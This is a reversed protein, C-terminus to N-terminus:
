YQRFVVDFSYTKTWQMDPFNLLTDSIEEKIGDGFIDTEESNGYCYIVISKALVSGYCDYLEYFGADKIKRRYFYDNIFGELQLEDQRSVTPKEEVETTNTDSQSTCGALVLVFGILLLKKMQTNKSNEM